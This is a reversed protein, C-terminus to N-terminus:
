CNQSCAYTYASFIKIQLGVETRMNSSNAGTGRKAAPQLFNARLIKARIHLIYNLVPFATDVRLHHLILIPLHWFNGCITWCPRPSKQYLVPWIIREVSQRGLLFRSLEAHPGSSPTPTGSPAGSRGRSVCPKELAERSKRIQLTGKEKETCCDPAFLFICVYLSRSYSWSFAFRCSEVQFRGDGHSSSPQRHASKNTSKMRM